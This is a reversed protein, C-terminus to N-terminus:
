HAGSNLRAYEPIADFCPCEKIREFPDIIGNGNRDESFDRHGLIRAAPFLLKLYKLIIILSDKQAETRNDTAKGQATIGGIYCIHISHANHGKVGNAPKNIDQLQIISGDASVIYHYGPDKWKLVERWYKRIASVPSKQSSASCHLVLDNIVRNNVSGNM